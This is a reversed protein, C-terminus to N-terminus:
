KPLGRILIGYCFHQNRTSSSEFFFRRALAKISSVAGLPSTDDLLSFLFNSKSSFASSALIHQSSGPLVQVTSVYYSIKRYSNSVRTPQNKKIKEEPHLFENIRVASESEEHFVTYISLQVHRSDSFIILFILFEWVRAGFLAM